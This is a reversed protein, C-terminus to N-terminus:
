FIEFTKGITYSSIREIYNYNVFIKRSSEVNKQLEHIINKWKTDVCVEDILDYFDLKIPFYVMYLDYNWKKMVYQYQM